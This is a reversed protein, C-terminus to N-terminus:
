VEGVKVFSFEEFTNETKGQKIIQEIKIKCISSIIRGKCRLLV